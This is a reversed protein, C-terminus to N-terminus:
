HPVLFQDIDLRQYYSIHKLDLWHHALRDPSILMLHCDIYFDARTGTLMENTFVLHAFTAM